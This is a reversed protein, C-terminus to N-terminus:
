IWSFYWFIIIIRTFFNKIPFKDTEHWIFNEKVRRCIIFIPGPKMVLSIMLSWSTPLFYDLIADYWNPEYLLFWIMHATDCWIHLIPRLIHGLVSVSIAFEGFESFYTVCLLLRRHLPWNRPFEQLYYTRFFTLISWIMLAMWLSGLDHASLYKLRKTCM